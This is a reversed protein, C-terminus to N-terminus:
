WVCAQAILLQSTRVFIRCGQVVYEKFRNEPTDEIILTTDEDSGQDANGESNLALREGDPTVELEDMEESPKIKGGETM